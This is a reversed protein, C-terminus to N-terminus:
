LPDRWEGTFVWTVLCTLLHVLLGSLGLFVVVGIVYGIMTFAMLLFVRVGELWIPWVLAPLVVILTVVGLRIFLATGVM